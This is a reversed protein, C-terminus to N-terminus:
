SLKIIAEERLYVQDKFQEVIDGDLRITICIKNPGTM